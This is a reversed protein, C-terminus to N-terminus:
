PPKCMSNIAPLVFGFEIRKQFTRHHSIQPHENFVKLLFIQKILVGSETFILFLQKKTEKIFPILYIAKVSLIEKLNQLIHKVVPRM